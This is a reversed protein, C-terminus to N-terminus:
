RQNSRPTGQDCVHVDRSFAQDKGCGMLAQDIATTLKQCQPFGSSYWFLWFANSPVNPTAFWGSRCDVAPPRKSQRFLSRAKPRRKCSQAGQFTKGGREPWMRESVHGRLTSSSVQLARCCVHVCTITIAIWSPKCLVPVRGCSQDCMM